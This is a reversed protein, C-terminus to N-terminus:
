ARVDTLKVLRVVTGEGSEKRSISVADVLLRMLQIGRGREGCSCAASAEAAEREDFGDGTDSVDIVVRDPYSAVTTVIGEGKTHDVANGIAEGTALRVDFAEDPTLAVGLLLEGLRSRASALDTPVVRFSTRWLPAVDPGLEPIQPRPGALSVPMLDVIRLVSLAHYVERSVCSLSLLGGNARVRRLESIILGMGASDVHSVNAMNFVVRKCDNTVLSDVLHRAEAVTTVDLDYEFPVLAIDTGHAM